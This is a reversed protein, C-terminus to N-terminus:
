LIVHNQLLTQHITHFCQKKISDLDKVSKDHTPIPAHVVINMMGPQAAFTGDPMLKWNSLLTVPVIPAQADLALKFAGDKFSSLQPAKSGITGEPFIVVHMGNQLRHRTQVYSKGAAMVDKRNVGLDVTRFFIGFLPIKSLEHKALFMFNGPIVLAMSLIDLYSTHNAIFVCPQELSNIGEDRSIRVRIGTLVLILRAWFRRLQNAKPYYGPQSLLVYFAPYLCLFTGVFVILFWVGFLFKCWRKIPMLM